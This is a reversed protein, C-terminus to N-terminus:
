NIDKLDNYLIKEGNRIVYVNQSNEVFGIYRQIIVNMYKEDLEVGYCIRDTQECAILTSGSGLFPDLVICNRMSSNQILYALLNIPKMTPHLKSRTPRNYDWITTQKRDNYWGHKGDKKWGYMISEHMWQYPSRGIVFSNKKWICCCSLYFKADDFAKRFTLGHMDSYFVYISADDAMVENINNFADLLFKYFDKESMNDNKIKGATKEVDANYPPDTLVLNAKNGDM